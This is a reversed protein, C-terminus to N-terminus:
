ATAAQSWFSGLSSRSSYLMEPLSPKTPALLSGLLMWRVTGRSPSSVPTGEGLCVNPAPNPPQCRSLKRTKGLQGWGSGLQETFCGTMGTPSLSAQDAKVFPQPISNQGLQTSPTAEDGVESSLGHGAPHSSSSPSSSVREVAGTGQELGLLAFLVKSALTSLPDGACVRHAQPVPPPRLHRGAGTGLKVETSISIEPCGPRPRPQSRPQKQPQPHSFYPWPEPLPQHQM